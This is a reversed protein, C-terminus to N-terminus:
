PNWCNAPQDNIKVWYRKTNLVNGWGYVTWGGSSLGSTPWPSGSNTSNGYFATQSMGLIYKGDHHEAMRWSSGFSIQCAQDGATVTSLTTGYIPLTTAIHGGGWGNYFEKPM